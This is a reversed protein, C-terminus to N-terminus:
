TSNALFRKLEQIFQDFQDHHLWHGAQDINLTTLHKFHSATEDQGIRHEFGQRANMLLAPCNIQQWLEIMDHTSLRSSPQSHTYNDFKWSFSGDENENTGNATLHHARQESLHPNSTMLRQLASAFDPYRKPIRGALSRTDQAWQRLTASISGPQPLNQWYIGVGEISTLSLTKEPFLSAFISAVTGGMSHGVIHCPSLGRQDVLQAIDFVYDLLNYASGRNWESDGHGRLDPTVVHYDTKLVEATWDWNHCHDQIGHVLLVTPKAPNGWDLYHMRLRQSYYTQSAPASNAHFM